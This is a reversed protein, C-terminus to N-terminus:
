YRKKCSLLLKKYGSVKPITWLSHLWSVAMTILYSGSNTMPWCWCHWCAAMTVWKIQYPHHGLPQLLITQGSGCAMRFYPILAACFNAQVATNNSPLNQMPYAMKPYKWYCFRAPHVYTSVTLTLISRSEGARVLSLYNCQFYYKYSVGYTSSLDYWFPILLRSWSGFNPSRTLM